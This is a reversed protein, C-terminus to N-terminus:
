GKKQAEMLARVIRVTDVAEKVDHVRLIAAGLLLSAANAATTGALREGTDRGTLEGIFRKRSLGVLVPFGLASLGPLAAILALNDKLGKGFGIGPDLIIHDKPIGVAGARRVAELLSARVEGAPDEYRPDDQMTRPTGKKHM